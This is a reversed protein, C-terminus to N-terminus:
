HTRRCNGSMAPQADHVRVPGHNGPGAETVTFCGEQTEGFTGRIVYRYEGACSPMFRIRYMGDGDYFGDAEVTEADGQFTGRITHDTFPNGDTRGPFSLELCGWREVRINEM